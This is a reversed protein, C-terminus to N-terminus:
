SSHECASLLVITVSSGGGGMASGSGGCRSAGGDKWAETSVEYETTMTDGNATSRYSTASAVPVVHSATVVFRWVATEANRPASPVPVVALLGSPPRPADAGAPIGIAFTVVSFGPYRSVSAACAVSVATAPDAPPAITGTTSGNPPPDCDELLGSTAARAREVANTDSVSPGVDAV